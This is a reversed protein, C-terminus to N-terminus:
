YKGMSVKPLEFYLQQTNHLFVYSLISVEFLINLGLPIPACIKTDAM